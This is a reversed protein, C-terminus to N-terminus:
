EQDCLENKGIRSAIYEPVETIDMGLAVALEGYLLEEARKLYRDDISGLKRKMSIMEQKKAYISMALKLINKCEHTNISQEYHERVQRFAPNHYAEAKVSPISDILEEAEERSIVPRIFVKCNDAPTSIVCTQYLPQLIYYPRISGDSVERQEIDAVRCVGTNGYVILDDISYM